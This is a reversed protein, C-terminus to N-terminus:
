SVSFMLAMVFASGLGARRGGSPEEGPVDRGCFTLALQRTGVDALLRPKFAAQGRANAFRLLGAPGHGSLQPRGRGPRTSSRSHTALGCVTLDTVASALITLGRRSSASNGKHVLRDRGAVRLGYPEAGWLCAVAGLEAV